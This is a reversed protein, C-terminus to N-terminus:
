RGVEALMTAAISWRRRKQGYGANQLFRLRVALIAADTIEHMSPPQGDPYTMAKVFEPLTATQLTTELVARTDAQLGTAISGLKRKMADNLSTVALWLLKITALRYQHAQPGPRRQSAIADTIATSEDIDNDPGRDQIAIDLIPILAQFWALTQAAATNADPSLPM